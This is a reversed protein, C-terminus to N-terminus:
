GLRVQGGHAHGALTLDIAHPRVHRRYYEPHHCMLLRFEPQRAMEAVFPIEARVDARSSLGGLLIGRFPVFGDDLVTVRSAEVHPWYEQLLPHKREHNGVAYFTPALEPAASLFEVARRYGRSHRDVLDGGILIADCQGLVPLLEDFPGDHLDSVFALTLPEAIRASRITVHNIERPSRSKNREAMDRLTM